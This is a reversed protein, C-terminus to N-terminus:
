LGGDGPISIFQHTHLSSLDLPPAPGVPNLSIFKVQYAVEWANWKNCGQHYERGPIITKCVDLIIDSIASLM